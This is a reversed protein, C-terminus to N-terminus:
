HNNKKTIVWIENNDKVGGGSDEDGLTGVGVIVPMVSADAVRLGAVGRVKLAVSVVKLLHDIGVKLNTDVVANADSAGGMRCSSTPHYTTGM